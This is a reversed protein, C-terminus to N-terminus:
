FSLTPSDATLEQGKQGSPGILQVKIKETAPFRKFLESLDLQKLNDAEACALTYHAHIDNHAQKHDDHDHANHAHADAFLPSELEQATVSCQGQSIGFLEVPKGLESQASAVKSKDEASKAEHEFGVLNMAPSNLQLELTQGDLAVDLEAFGHVHAGLSGHEEHQHDHEAHDHAVCALPLLAVPLAFLFRRM